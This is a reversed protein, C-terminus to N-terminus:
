FDCPEANITILKERKEGVTKRDGAAESAQRQQREAYDKEKEDKFNLASEM